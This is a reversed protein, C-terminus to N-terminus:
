GAKNGALTPICRNIIYICPLLILTITATILLCPLLEERLAETETGTMVSFIKIVIRKLPEHLCMIILSNRGLFCLADSLKTKELLRCLSLTSVSGIIALVYFWAGSLEHARMDVRIDTLLYIIYLAAYGGGVSILALTVSVHERFAEYGRYALFILPLVVLALEMCWPLSLRLGYVWGYGMTALIVSLALPHRSLTLWGFLVRCVFLCPLFWLVVNYLFADKFSIATFINIFQQGKISFVNALWPFLNGEQIPRFRSELLAWYAFCLLSYALYPVAIGRAIHGWRMGKSSSYTLACGTLMFFLPMHFYYVVGNLIGSYTHAFVVLLIGVGKAIDILKDRGSM